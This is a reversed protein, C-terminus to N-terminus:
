DRGLLRTLSKAIAKFDDKAYGGSATTVTPISREALADVVLEDREVLENPTLSLAGLPDGMLVDAGLNCFAIAVNGSRQCLDLFRPLARRLERLYKDGGTGLDLPIGVDVRDKAAEDRNPYVDANFVDLIKVQSDDMLCHSVGNGQHADLDLYAIVDERAIKEERRLVHIAMAVDNFLCFGEPKHPKAHHFGGGLNIALRHDLALRAAHVTGAVAWRVPTVLGSQLWFNPTYAALGIEFAKALGSSTRVMALHEPSHVLALEEFSIPEKPSEHMTLLQAGFEEELLEWVKEYKRADFPHLRELGLLSINYKPSYVIRPM